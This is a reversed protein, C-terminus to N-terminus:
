VTAGGKVKIVDEMVCTLRATYHRFDRPDIEDWIKQIERKLEEKTTVVYPLQKLKEKM